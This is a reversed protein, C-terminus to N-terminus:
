KNVAGKPNTGVRYYPQGPRSIESEVRRCRSARVPRPAASDTGHRRFRTMEKSGERKGRDAQWREAQRPGAQWVDGWLVPSVLLRDSFLLNTARFSVRLAPIWHRPQGLEGALFGGTLRKKGHCRRASHPGIAGSKAHGEGGV